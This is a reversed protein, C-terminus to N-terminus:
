RGILPQIFSLTVDHARADGWAELFHSVPATWRCVRSTEEARLTAHVSLPVTALAGGLDLARPADYVPNCELAVM